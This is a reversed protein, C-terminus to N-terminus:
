VIEVVELYIYDSLGNLYEILEELMSKTTSLKLIAKYNDITTVTALNEATKIFDDIIGIDKRKVQIYVFASKTIEKSYKKSKEINESM